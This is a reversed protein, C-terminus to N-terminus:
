ILAPERLHGPKRHRGNLSHLRAYGHAPAVDIRQDLQDRCEIRSANSLEFFAGGAMRLAAAYPQLDYGTGGLGREISARSAFCRACGPRACSKPRGKRRLRKAFTKRRRM